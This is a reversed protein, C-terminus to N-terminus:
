ANYTAASIGVTRLLLGDRTRDPLKALAAMMRADRGVLYRAKPRRATLAKVIAKVASDVPGPKARANFEGMKATVGEYLRQADADGRWGAARRAAGSKDFIATDLLGPEIVCVKVGLPRMEVRLAETVSALAAKSAAIPGFAPGSMRASVAGINVVRGRAARLMPLVAQAMAIQGVVNVDFQRRWDELPVLEVPGEVIVGANNVLADLRGGTRAAIEKAAAEVTEEDILDVTLAHVGAPLRAADADRRVGAYVEWGLDALSRVAASGVGGAAGTILVTRTSM